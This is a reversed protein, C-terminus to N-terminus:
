KRKKPVEDITIKRFPHCKLYRKVALFGGYIIGHTIIAEKAYESCTPYFNCRRPSMPSIYKQYYNIFFLALKKM